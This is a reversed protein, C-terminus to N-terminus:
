RKGTQTPFCLEVQCHVSWAVEILPIEERVFEALDASDLDPIRAVVPGQTSHLIASGLRYRRDWPGAEVTLGQIRQHPIITVTRNLRGTRIILAYPTRAYGQYRWVFPTLCRARRPTGVRGPGEGTGRMAQEVVAWVADTTADPMIATVAMRAMVPDAVPALVTRSQKSPLGYGAVNLDIRWWNPGRWWLRQRLRLAQIREAPISQNVQTVLGHTLRVGDPEVFVTWGMETVVYTWVTQGLSLLAPVVAALPGWHNMVLSIVVLAVITTGMSWPTVTRLYARITWNPPVRFLHQPVATRAPEPEGTTGVGTRRALLLSRLTEAESLRVYSLSLNSDLGGATELSLTALGFLRPVIGRVIDIAELQDIRISRHRRFLIGVALEVSEAGIRFRAQRWWLLNYLIAIALVGAVVAAITGLGAVRGVEMLDSLSNQAQKVVMTGLLVLVAWGRLWPTLPHLHRWASGAPPIPSATM